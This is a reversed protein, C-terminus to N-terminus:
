KKDKTALFEGFQEKVQQWQQEWDAKPPTDDGGLNGGVRTQPAFGVEGPRPEQSLPAQDDRPEFVVEEELNIGGDHRMTPNGFHDTISKFFMQRYEETGVEPMKQFANHEYPGFVNEKKLTKKACKKAKKMKKCGKCFGKDDFDPKGCSCPPKDTDPEDAPEDIDIEPKGDGEEDDDELEDGEEDDEPRLLDEGDMKKKKEEIQHFGAIGL